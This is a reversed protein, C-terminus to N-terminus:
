RQMDTFERALERFSMEEFPNLESFNHSKLDKCHQRNDGPSGKLQRTVM